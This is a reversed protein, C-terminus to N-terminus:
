AVRREAGTRRLLPAQPAPAPAGTSGAAGATGGADAATRDPWRRDTPAPHLGAARREATRAAGSEAAAPRLLAGTSRRRCCLETSVSKTPMVAGAFNTALLAVIAAVVALSEM